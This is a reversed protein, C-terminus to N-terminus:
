KETTFFRFLFVVSLCAFSFSVLRADLGMCGESFSFLVLVNAKRFPPAGGRRGPDFQKNEENTSKKHKPKSSMKKCVLEELSFINGGM